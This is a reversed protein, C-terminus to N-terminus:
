PYIKIIGSVNADWNRIDFHLHITEMEIASIYKYEERKYNKFIDERVEEISTEKFILDVARGFKHMSWTAGISCDFPRFGRYHNSGNWYWDNVGIKGFRDRLKDATWLLRNDFLRSIAITSGNLEKYINEPVLEFWNYHKPLYIM